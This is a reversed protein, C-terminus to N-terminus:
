KKIRSLRCKKLADRLAIIDDANNSEGIILTKNQGGAHRRFQIWYGFNHRLLRLSIHDMDESWSDIPGFEWYNYFKFGNALLLKNINEDFKPLKIFTM